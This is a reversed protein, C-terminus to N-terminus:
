RKPEVVTVTCVDSGHVGFVRFRLSVARPGDDSRTRRTPVSIVVSTRGAPLRRLLALNAKPLPTDRSPVDRAYVHKDRFWKPLDGFTLQRGDVARVASAIWQTKFALPVKLTLRWKAADGEAVRRDVPKVNLVAVPEDDVITAIGNYRDTQIGQVGFGVVHIERRGRFDRATNPTYPLSLSGSATHAPILVTRPAGKVSDLPHYEVTTVNITADAALDGRIHYPLTFTGDGPGDGEERRSKGFSILPIQGIPDTIGSAPAASMDVIWARGDASRSVPAVTVIDALDVGSVGDLPVRLTQAWMKGLYHGGGPLPLLVGDNEPTVVASGGSGDFLVV